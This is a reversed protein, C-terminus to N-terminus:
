INSIQDRRHFAQEKQWSKFDQPPDKEGRKEMDGEAEPSPPRQSAGWHERGQTFGEGRTPGPGGSAELSRLMVVTIPHWRQPDMVFGRSGTNGVREETRPSAPLPISSPAASTRGLSGGARGPDAKGSRRRTDEKGSGRWTNKARM